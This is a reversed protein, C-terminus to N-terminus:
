GFRQPWAQRASDERLIEVAFAYVPSPDTVRTAFTKGATEFFDRLIAEAELRKRPDNDNGAKLHTVISRIVDLSASLAAPDTRECLVKVGQLRPLLGVEDRGVINGLEIVEEHSLHGRDRAASSIQEIIPIPQTTPQSSAPASSAQAPTLALCAILLYELTM